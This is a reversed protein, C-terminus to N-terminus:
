ANSMGHHFLEDAKEQDVPRSFLFGQGFHCNMKTLCEAQDPTEIGEAVVKLDFKNAMILIAEIIKYNRDNKIMPMIFSRDLKVIDIPFRRIYGLSSYGTGFDDLALSVGLERIEELTIAIQDVNKAFISETIELTLYVPDLGTLLLIEKLREVFRAAELQSVSINVHLALPKENPYSRHWDSMKHCSKLLIWDGIRHILGIEEALPIFVTPSIPSGSSDNLRALVELGVINLNDLSYIPQYHLDFDDAEVAATLRDIIDMRETTQHRLNLDFVEYRGKGLSKARYMAIDADRLVDASCTHEATVMVIGISASLTFDKNDIKFPTQLIELIREAVSCAYTPSDAAELLIVFEDGGLRAVTDSTRVFDRLRDAVAVLLKDGAQHGLSDNVLKFNDLDLFLVSIAEEGSRRRRQMSHELRNLFLSRNALRTLGDHYADFILQEQAKKLATIDSCSGALRHARKNEYSVAQGRTRFWRQSGDKLVMRHECEFYNTLGEIHHTIATQFRNRDDPHIIKIWERINSGIEGNSYGLMEKWRNSFYMHNKKLDWDWIGDNAGQIALTYREESVRLAKEMNHKYLAMEIAIFLEREQFPKLIYGSPSTIKARELTVEDVFATLFIIAVDLLPRIREATEIGDIPGKIKIDMLILDPRAKQALNIAQEGSAAHGAVTYGAGILRKQLDLAVILEDEVILISSKEM